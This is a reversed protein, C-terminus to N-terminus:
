ADTDGPYPYPFPIIERALFSSVLRPLDCAYVTVKWLEGSRRHAVLSVDNATRRENDAQQLWKEIDCNERRKVEIHVDRMGHVVDPSDSGGRFQQGRRAPTRWLERMLAAFELEGRKGKQRSNIRPM